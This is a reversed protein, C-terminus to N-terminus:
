TYAEGMYVEEIREQAPCCKNHCIPCEFISSTYYGEQGMMEGPQKFEEELKVAEVNHEKCFLKTKPYHHILRGGCDPCIELSRKCTKCAYIREEFSSTNWM